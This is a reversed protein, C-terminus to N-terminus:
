LISLIKNINMMRFYLGPNVFFLRVSFWVHSRIIKFNHINEEGPLNKNFTNPNDAFDLDTTYITVEHKENSLERALDVGLFLIGGFQTAPLSAHCTIGIKM